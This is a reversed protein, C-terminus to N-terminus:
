ETEEEHCPVALAECLKEGLLEGNDFALIFRGCEERLSLFTQHEKPYNGTPSYRFLDAYVVANSAGLIRQAADGATPADYLFGTVGLEALAVGLPCRERENRPKPSITPEGKEWPFREQQTLYTEQCMERRIEEPLHRVLLPFTTM